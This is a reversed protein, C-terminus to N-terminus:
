SLNVPDIDVTLSTEEPLSWDRVLAAIVQSARSMHRTRLMVQYRYFSEARALPAPAPGALVLDSWGALARDLEKRVHEATFRVKEENRGKLTLLAIRSLPPYKLQQRFEIEQDYFSIFDH